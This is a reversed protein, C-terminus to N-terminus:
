ISVKRFRYIISITHRPKNLYPNRNSVIQTTSEAPELSPSVKGIRFAWISEPDQVPISYGGESSMGAALEPRESIGSM